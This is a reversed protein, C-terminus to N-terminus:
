WDIHFDSVWEVISGALQGKNGARHLNHDNCIHWLIDCTCERRNLQEWLKVPNKTACIVEYWKEMNSNFPRLIAMAGASQSGDGSPASVDIKWVQWCHTQFLGTEFLHMPEIATFLVPDWYPLDLLPSWRIGYNRFLREQEKLSEVDRWRKV